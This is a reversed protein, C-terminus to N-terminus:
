NMSELLSRFSGHQQKKQANTAKWFHAFHDMNSNKTTREHKGFTLSIIWTATKKQANTAKWVHAFHDMNSNKTKQANTAKWFHAFHDMNSNKKTREHKGFTLSIIWTATKQQANMSELLSRFGM